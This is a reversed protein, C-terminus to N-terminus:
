YAGSVRWPPMTWANAQAPCARLFESRNWEKVSPAAPISRGRDSHVLPRDDHCQLFAQEFTDLVLATDNKQSVSFSVINRGYLDLIASLYAKRGNGYKFETVDTLWKENPRCATFERNLTNEAIYDAPSKKKRRHKKRRCVSRLGLIGMLRYVRKLNCKIGHRRELILKMQRYGPIGHQSQYIESILSALQEDNSQKQSQTRNKWKYYAARSVGVVKCLQGVPWSQEQHLQDVVQYESLNRTGSFDAEGLRQLRCQQLRRRVALELELASEQKKLRKNEEVVKTLKKQPTKHTGRLKELGGSHYFKSIPVAM